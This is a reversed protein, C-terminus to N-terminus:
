DSGLVIKKDRGRSNVKLKEKLANVNIRDSGFRKRRLV